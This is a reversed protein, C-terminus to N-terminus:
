PKKTTSTAGTSATSATSTPVTGPRTGPVTGPITGPPLTGVVSFHCNDSAYTQVARGAEDIKAIEQQRTRFVEKAALDPDKGDSIAESLESTITVLVGVADAIEAPSVGQLQRLDQVTRNINATDGSAIVVDFGIVPRAHTCFEAVSREPERTCASIVVAAVFLLGLVAALATRLRRRPDTPRPLAVFPKSSRM